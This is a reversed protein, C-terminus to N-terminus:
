ICPRAVLILPPQNYTRSTSIIMSKAKIPVSIVPRISYLPCRDHRVSKKGGDRMEDAASICWKQTSFLGIAGHKSYLVNLKTGHKAIFYSSVNHPKSTVTEAFDGPFTTLDGSLHHNRCIPGPTFSSV